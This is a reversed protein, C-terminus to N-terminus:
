DTIKGDSHIAYDVSLKWSDCASPGWIEYDYLNCTLTDGERHDCQVCTKVTTLGPPKGESTRPEKQTPIFGSPIQPGDHDRICIRRPKDEDNAETWVLHYEIDFAYDETLYLHCVVGTEGETSILKVELRDNSAMSLEVSPGDDLAFSLGDDGESMTAPAQGIRLELLVDSLDECILKM